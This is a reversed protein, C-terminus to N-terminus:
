QEPETNDEDDEGEVSVIEVEFVLTEYPPMTRLSGSTRGEAGYALENPIVLRGKEGNKFKALGLHWGAIPSTEAEFDGVKFTYPADEASEDFQREDTLYGRYAVEITSDIAVPVGDTAYDIMYYLVADTTPDHITDYVAVTDMYSAIKALEYADMDPIVELLEVEYKLSQYAGLTGNGTEGFGLASTFFMTAEGGERMLGLGETLGENTTSIPFKFPGYIAVKNVDLNNDDAVNEIYSEYVYEDPIISNVHNILVWDDGDPSAGNGVSNEDFYLGSSLPEVDPYRSAVYIDFFRQEKAGKDVLATEETCASTFFVALITIAIFIINLRKNMQQLKKGQGTLELSTVAGPHFINHM